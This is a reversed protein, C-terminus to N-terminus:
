RNEISAYKTFGEGLDWTFFEIKGNDLGFALLYKGNTTFDPAFSCATVSDEMELFAMNKHKIPKSHTDVTEDTQEDLSGHWICVRKDRSTTM